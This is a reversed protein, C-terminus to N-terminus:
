NMNKLIEEVKDIFEYSEKKIKNAIGKTTNVTVSYQAIERKQKALHLEKIEEKKLSIKKLIDLDEIKLYKKKVFYEELILITASHSKSKFGIKSILSLAASYMAYYGCIVAWETFDYNAPIFLEKQVKKSKNLKLLTDMTVLNNKAKKLYKNSLRFVEKDKKLQKKRLYDKIKM